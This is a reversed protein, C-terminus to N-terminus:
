KPPLFLNNATSDSAPYESPGLVVTAGSAHSPDLVLEAPAALLTSPSLESLSADTPLQIYSHTGNKSGPIPISSTHDLLSRMSSHSGRGQAYGVAMSPHANRPLPSTPPSSKPLIGANDLFSASTPTMGETTHALLAAEQSAPSLADLTLARRRFVFWQSFVTFDQLVTGVSGIIYPLSALLLGPPSVFSQLMISSFYFLNGNLAFIFMSLSLGEVSRRRHNKLIQPLRSTIYFGCCVWAIIRGIIPSDSSASSPDLLSFADNAGSAAPGEFFDQAPPSSVLIWLRYIVFLGLAAATVGLMGRSICGRRRRRTLHSPPTGSHHRYSSSASPVTSLAALSQYSVPATPNNYNAALLATGAQPQGDPSSSSPALHHHYSTDSFGMSRLLQSDRRKVWWRYYFLQFCLMSDFTCFYIGLFKQFPLQNTLFCGLLNCIDGSLWILIFSLSLSETNGSRWNLYIQPTLACLWCVISIGSCLQAILGTWSQSCFGEVLTPFYAALPALLGPLCTSM